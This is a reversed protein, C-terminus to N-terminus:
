VARRVPDDAPDARLGETGRRGGAREPQAILEPEPQLEGGARRPHLGPPRARQNEGAPRQEREADAPREVVTAVDGSTQTMAYGPPTGSDGGPQIRRSLVAQQRWGLNTSSESTEETTPTPNWAAPGSSTFNTTSSATAPRVAPM